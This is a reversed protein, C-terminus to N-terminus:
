RGTAHKRSWITSGKRHERSTHSPCNESVVFPSVDALAPPEVMARLIDDVTPVKASRQVEEEVISTLNKDVALWEVVVRRLLEQYNGLPKYGAIYPFGLEILVASINQHKCEISGDTRSNLLSQLHRRHETKNFPQGRLEKDFMAFYDAVIAEVETNSWDAM